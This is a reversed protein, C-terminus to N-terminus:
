DELFGLEFDDPEGPAGEGKLSGSTRERNQRLRSENKYLERYKEAEAESAALRTKLAEHEYAAGLSMGAELNKFFGATFIEEGNRLKEAIEPHKELLESAQSLLEEDPAAGASEEPAGEEPGPEPEREAEAPPAAAKEEALEEFDKTEEEM